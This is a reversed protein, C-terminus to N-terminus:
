LLDIVTESKHSLFCLRCFKFSVYINLLTHYFVTCAVPLFTVFYQRLKVTNYFATFRWTFSWM